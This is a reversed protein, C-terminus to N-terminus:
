RRAAEGVIEPPADRAPAADAPRLYLPAPSAGPTAGAALRAIAAAWDAPPPPLAAGPATEAAVLQPDADASPRLYIMGRPASVAAPRDPATQAIVDFTSVGIAPIDLSLALGRAASVAIRIGTFNGPGTGVGIRDLDAWTKGADSLLTELLPFLAEAQGKTMERARTGLIIDGAFLAAACHGASTDFGLTLM